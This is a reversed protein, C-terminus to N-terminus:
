SSPYNFSFFLFFSHIFGVHLGEDHKWQWGDGSGQGERYDVEGLRTVIESGRNKELLAAATSKPVMASDVVGTVGVLGRLYGWLDDMNNTVHENMREVGREKGSEEIALDLLSWCEDHFPISSIVYRSDSRGLEQYVHFGYTNAAKEEETFVPYEMHEEDGEEEDVSAFADAWNHVQRILGRGTLYATTGYHEHNLPQVTAKKYILARLNKTWKMQKTSIRRGDYAQRTTRRESMMGRRRGETEARLRLKRSRKAAYSMNNLVVEEPVIWNDEPKINFEGGLDLDEKDDADDDGAPGRNYIDYGNRAAHTPQTSSVATRFVHAFPGGCLACHFHTEYSRSGADSM